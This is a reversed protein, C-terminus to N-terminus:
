LFNICIMLINKTIRETFKSVQKITYIEDVNMKRQLKPPFKEIFSVYYLYKSPNFLPFNSITGNCKHDNFNRHENIESNVKFPSIAYIPWKKHKEITEIYFAIFDSYNSFKYLHKTSHSTKIKNEATKQSYLLQNNYDNDEYYIYFFDTDKINFKNFFQNLFCKKLFISHMQYHFLKSLLDLQNIQVESNLLLLVFKNDIKILRFKSDINIHLQESFSDLNIAGEVLSCIPSKTNKNITDNFNSFEPSSIEDLLDQHSKM